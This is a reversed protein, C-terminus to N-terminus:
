LIKTVIVVAEKQAVLIFHQVAITIITYRSVVPQSIFSPMVVFYTVRLVTHTHTHTHIYAHTHLNTLWKNSITVNNCM